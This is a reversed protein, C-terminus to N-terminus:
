YLQEGLAETLPGLCLAALYNLLAFLVVFGILFVVFTPTDTRLTGLGRSVSRCSGVSGALALVFLIPVFRGVTM